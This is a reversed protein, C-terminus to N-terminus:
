WKENIIRSVKEYKFKLNRLKPPLVSCDKLDDYKVFLFDRDKAINSLKCIDGISLVEYIIDDDSAIIDGVNFDRDQSTVIIPSDGSLYTM